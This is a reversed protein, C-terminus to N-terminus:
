RRHQNSIRGVYLTEPGDPSFALSRTWHHNYGMGPLDLIHEASGLRKSSELDYRFGLVENTNAVYVYDDHFAIGFPPAARPRRGM